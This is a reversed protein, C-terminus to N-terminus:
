TPGFSSHRGCARKFSKRCFSAPEKRPKQLFTIHYSIKKRRESVASQKGMNAPATHKHHARNGSKQDDVNTGFHVFRGRPEGSTYGLIRFAMKTLVDSLM